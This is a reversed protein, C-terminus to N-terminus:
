TLPEGLYKLLVAPKLELPLVFLNSNGEYLALAPFLIWGLDSSLWM